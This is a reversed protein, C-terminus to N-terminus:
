RAEVLSMIARKHRGRENLDRLAKSFAIRASLEPAV